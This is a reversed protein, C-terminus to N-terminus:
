VGPAPLGETVDGDGAGLLLCGRDMLEVEVLSLWSPPADSFQVLSWRLRYSLRRVCIEEWALMSAETIMTIPSRPTLVRLLSLGEPARALQKCLSCVCYRRTCM